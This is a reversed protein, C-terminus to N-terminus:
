AKANRLILQYFRYFLNKSDHPGPSAEPHYQVSFVPRNKLRMGELTHDNLSLHTVEVVNPDLSPISVAYNHNQSTVVVQGTQLDLVPHNGSHHGFKLKITEGGLARGILQHGLCIGFMPIGTDILKRVEGVIRELGAPDGPGNSLLVGDAHLAMVEACTTYAPVVIVSLGYSLLYRLINRKAGFDFVLVSLERRAETPQIDLWNSGPDATFSASTQCTVEQVMDRGDLGPWEQAMKVLDPGFKGRTSLAAKLTGGDRLKRTLFRVDIGSIGPIGRQALWEPLTCTSRWNSVAPSVERVIVASVQPALSEDDELNIGTNGIHSATFLVGQGRYSPDTLIEQYGTMSTNFVLEFVVDVPAGFAEGTFLSGDELALIATQM